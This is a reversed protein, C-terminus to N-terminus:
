GDVKMRRASFYLIAYGIWPSIATFAFLGGGGFFLTWLLLDFIIVFFVLWKAIESQSGRMKEPLTWRILLPTAIWYILWVAMSAVINGGLLNHTPLFANGRLYATAYLILVGGLTGTGWVLLAVALFQIDRKISM